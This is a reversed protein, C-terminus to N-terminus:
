DTSFTLRSNKVANDIRFLASSYEFRIDVGVIAFGIVVPCDPKAKVELLLDIYDAFCEVAEQM